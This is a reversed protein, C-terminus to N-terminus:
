NPAIKDNSDGLLEYERISLNFKNLIWPKFVSMTLYRSVPITKIDAM